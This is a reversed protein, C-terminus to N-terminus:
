DRNGKVAVSGCSMAASTGSSDQAKVFVTEPIIATGTNTFTLTTRWPSFNVNDNSWLYTYSGNNGGSGTASGSPIALTYGSNVPSLPLNLVAQNCTVSPVNSPCNSVGCYTFSASITHNALVNSFTYTGGASPFSPISVTDTAVSSVEYSASPSITFAQSGGSNVTVSGLPAITGGTGASSTITYTTNNTSGIRVGSMDVWGVVDSGWAYGSFQNTSTNLTVGGNGTTDGTAHNAGSLEIWGDWGSNITGSTSNPPTNVIANGISTYISGNGSGFSFIDNLAGADTAFLNTGDASLALKVLVRFCSPNLNGM